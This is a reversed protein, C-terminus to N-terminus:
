QPLEMDAFEDTASNSQYAGNLAATQGCHKVHLSKLSNIALSNLAAEDLGIDKAVLAAVIDGKEASENAEIRENLKTVTETLAQVTQELEDQSSNGRLHENYKALLDAETIEANVTVGAQQLAAIMLDRMIDGTNNTIESSEIDARNNQTSSESKAFLGKIASFAANMARKYIPKMEVETPESAITYGGEASSEYDAAWLKNDAYFIVSTDNFDEVWCDDNALKAEVAASLDRRKANIQEQAGDEFVVQENPMYFTMCEVDFGNQKITSCNVGIGVGKEPTAAGISDLLIADHDMIMSTAIWEYEDGADNTNIGNADEAVLVVGTSTHISDIKGDELMAVRDLLRKGKDSKLAEAVDIEKDVWVRGNERKVNRNVAGVLYGNLMAEPDNASIYEGDNNKPHEVPAHTGELSAYSKEIEEAPYLGRNMVVNDPLTASSVIVYERGNRTERRVKEKGVANIFFAVKTKPATQKNIVLGRIRYM